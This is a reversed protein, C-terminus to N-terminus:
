GKGKWPPPDNQCVRKLYQRASKLHSCMCMCIHFKKVKELILFLFKSFNSNRNKIGVGLGRPLPYWFGFNKFNTTSGLICFMVKLGCLYPVLIWFILKYRLFAAFRTPLISPDLSSQRGIFPCVRPPSAGVTNAISHVCLPPSAGVINGLSRVCM